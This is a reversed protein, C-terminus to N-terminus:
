NSNGKNGNECFGGDSDLLTSDNNTNKIKSKYELYDYIKGTLLFKEWRTDVDNCESFNNLSM